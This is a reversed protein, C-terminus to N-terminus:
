KPEYLSWYTLMTQYTGDQKLGAMGKNFLAIFEDNKGAKVALRFKTVKFLATAIKIKGAYLGSELQHGYISDMLVADLRGNILEEIATIVQDYPRFIYGLDERTTLDEGYNRGFGVVKSQLSKFNELTDNERVILVPGFSFFPDSFLFAKEDKHAPLQTTIVGDVKKKNLLPLLTKNPVKVFSVRFGERSAIEFFLDDTFGQVNKETGYLNLEEGNMNRYVVYSKKETSGFCGSLLFSLLFLPLFFATKPM